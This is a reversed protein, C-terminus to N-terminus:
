KHEVYLISCLLSNSCERTYRSFEEQSMYYRSGWSSLEIWEDDLGTVTVFHAMASVTPAYSGEPTVRCFTARKKQWFRPFNPGVALIVPIDQKLMTGMRQWLEAKPVSWRSRYPLRHRKFFRNMGLSLTLGNTGFPYLLPLYAKRLAELAREYDAQPLPSAVALGAFEPIHVDGHWRNLYLLLDLAAIVGCGCSQLVRDGCRRQDGGFSPSVSYAVSIYPNQLETMNDGSVTYRM